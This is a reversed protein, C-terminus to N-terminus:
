LSDNNAEMSTMMKGKQKESGAGAVHFLTSNIVEFVEVRPAGEVVELLSKAVEPNQMRNFAEESEQNNWFTIFTAETCEPSVLTIQDAFGAQKQLLPVVESAIIRAFRAVSDTRLKLSVQRAFM